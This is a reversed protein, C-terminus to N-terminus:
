GGYFVALCTAKKGLLAMFGNDTSNELYVEDVNM